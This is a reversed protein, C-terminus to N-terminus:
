SKKSIREASTRPTATHQSFNFDLPGLPGERCLGRTRPYWSSLPQSPNPTHALAIKNPTHALAVLSGGEIGKERERAEASSLEVRDSLLFAKEASGKYPLAHRQAM